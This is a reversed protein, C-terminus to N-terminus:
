LNLTTKLLGKKLMRLQTNCPPYQLNVMVYEGKCCSTQYGTTRVTMSLKLQELQHQKSDQWTTLTETCVNLFLIFVVFCIM